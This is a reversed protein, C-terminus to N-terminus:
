YSIKVHSSNLRTSKRDPPREVTGNPHHPGTTRRLARPAPALSIDTRHSGQSPTMDQLLARGVRATPHKPLRSRRSLLSRPSSAAALGDAYVGQREWWPASVTTAATSHVASRPMVM